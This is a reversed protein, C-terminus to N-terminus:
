VLKNADVQYGCSKLERALEFIWKGLKDYPTYAVGIYNSPMEFNLDEKKLIFVRNRDLKGIFFGLEFIVNQRARHKGSEPIQEKSYGFDDPSLIVVAFSVDSSDTFKEIITRGKNPQEHLIIPKLNMKEIARTVALKMEEDHGHVVFIENSITIKEKKVTMHKKKVEELLRVAVKPDIEISKEFWKQIKDVDNSGIENLILGKTLLFEANDPDLEIAKDCKVLAQDLRGLTVLAVADSILEDASKLRKIILERRKKECFWHLIFIKM